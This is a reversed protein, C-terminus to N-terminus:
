PAVPRQRVRRNLRTWDPHRELCALVDPYDFAPDDRFLEAYIKEVLAFDQATDVTWRLHSHDEADRVSRLRFREPRRWIFPTVHEREAPQAAEQDATRLVEASFVEVDLGRPYTRELTNSAYDFAELPDLFQSLVIRSVTPSLLPCDGNIRMVVDAGTDEAALAYRRLVDEEPGRTVGIEGRAELYALLPEDAPRDPVAMQVRDIGRIRLARDIVHGIMPQGSLPRLVKGPLRTSGLRAQIIAVIRM